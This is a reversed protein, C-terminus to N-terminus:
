SDEKLLLSGDLCYVRVGTPAGIRERDRILVDTENFRCWMRTQPSRICAVPHLPVGGGLVAPASRAVIQPLEVPHGDVNIALDFHQPSSHPEFAYLSAVPLHVLFGVTSGARIPPCRVLPLDTLLIAEDDGTGEDGLSVTGNSFIALSRPWSGALVGPPCDPPILGVAVYPLTEQAATVSFEYYTYVGATLAMMSPSTGWSSVSLDDDEELLGAGGFADNFSNLSSVCHNGCSLAVNDSTRRPDLVALFGCSKAENARARSFSDNSASLTEQLLVDRTGFLVSNVKEMSRSIVHSRSFPTPPFSAPSDAGHLIEYQARLGNSIQLIENDDAQELLMRHRVDYKQFDELLSTSFEVLSKAALSNSQLYRAARTLFRRVVKATETSAYPRLFKNYVYRYESPLDRNVLKNSKSPSPKKSRPRRSIPLRITAKFPQIPVYHHMSRRIRAYQLSDSQPSPPCESYSMLESLETLTRSRKVPEPQNPPLIWSRLIDILKEIGQYLIEKLTDILKELAQYFIEKFTCQSLSRWTELVTAFLVTFRHLLNRATENKECFMTLAWLVYNQWIQALIRSPVTVFAFYIITAAYNCFLNM